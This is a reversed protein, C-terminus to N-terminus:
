GGIRGNLDYRSFFRWVEEATNIDSDGDAGPWDHGGGNVRFHEVDVGSDGGASV